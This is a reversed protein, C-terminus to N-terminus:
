FNYYARLGVSHQIATVPDPGLNITEYAPSYLLQLTYKPNMTINLGLGAFGGFGWGNYQEYYINPLGQINQDFNTLDIQLSNIQIFNKEMRANNVSFGGEVFFNAKDSNGLIRSYGLQIIMRQETGAIAFQNNTWEQLQQNTSNRTEITFNGVVRLRAFNLNAIIAQKKTFGYHLALGFLFGTNYKLNTPMDTENFRWDEHNVVGLEPAIRDTFGNAPENEYVVKQYMFSSAFDKRNGDADYGYGNYIAASNKDPFFAGLYFGVHFGEAGKLSLSVDEQESEEQAFLPNFQLCFVSFIFLSYPIKM